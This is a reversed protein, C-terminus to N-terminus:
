LIAGIISVSFLRPCFRRRDDNRRQATNAKAPDLKSTVANPTVVIVGLEFGLALEDNRIFGSFTEDYRFLLCLLRVFFPDDEESSIDRFDASTSELWMESAVVFALLLLPIRSRTLRKKRDLFFLDLTTWSTRSMSEM